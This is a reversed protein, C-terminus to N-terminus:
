VAVFPLAPPLSFGHPLVRSLEKDGRIYANIAKLAKPHPSIFMWVALATAVLPFEESVLAFVGDIAPIDDLHPGTGKGKM